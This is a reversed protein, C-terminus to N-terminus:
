CFAERLEGGAAAGFTEAFGDKVQKLESERSGTFDGL